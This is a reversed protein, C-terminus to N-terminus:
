IEANRSYKGEFIILILGIYGLAMFTEQWELDLINGVPVGYIVGVLIQGILAARIIKQFLWGVSSLFFLFSVLM